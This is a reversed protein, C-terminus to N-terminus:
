AASASSLSPAIMAEACATSCPRPNAAESPARGTVANEPPQRLRNAFAALAVAALILGFGTHGRTAEVKEPGIGEPMQSAGALMLLVLVGMIWHLTKATGSYAKALPNNDNM